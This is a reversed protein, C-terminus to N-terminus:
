SSRLTPHVYLRNNYETNYAHMCAVHGAQLNKTVQHRQNRLFPTWRQILIYITIHRFTRIRTMINYHPVENCACQKLHVDWVKGTYSYVTPIAYRCFPHCWTFVYYSADHVILLCSYGTVSEPMTFGTVYMPHFKYTIANLNKTM